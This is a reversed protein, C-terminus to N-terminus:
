SCARPDPVYRPMTLLPSSWGAPTPDVPAATLGGRWPSASCVRLRVLRSTGSPVVVTTRGLRVTARPLAAPEGVRAVLWGAVRGRADWVAIGGRPLLRGDATRGTVLVRLRARPTSWLTATGHRAIPRADALVASSAGTYVLVHGSTLAAGHVRVTGDRAIAAQPDGLLDIDRGGRLRVVRTVHPNWFLTELATGPQADKGVVVMTSPGGAAADVWDARQPLARAFADRALLHSWDVAGGLLAFASAFSLAVVVVPGGRRFRAALAGAFALATGAIAVIGAAGAGSQVDLQLRNFAYFFPAVGRASTEAAGNLPVLAAVAALGAAVATEALARRESRSVRLGFALALLPLLYCLYRGQTRDYHEWLVSELLVAAAVLVTLVSFLFEARFRPRALGLALGVLASPVLAAGAALLVVYVDTGALRVAGGAAAFHGVYRYYGFGRVAAIAIGAVVAAGAVGFFLAQARLATRVRRERAADALLAVAVCIPLAALQMRALPALGCLALLVLQSRRTPRDHMSLAAAAVALALPYAFPESLIMGAFAAPPGAVALGALALALGAPVRLRRAILYAPVAALSMVFANELQVLRYALGVDHVLWVPATLAPELVSLFHAHVGRVQLSGSTAISRALQSYLYEDPFVSPSPLLRGLLTQLLTGALVIGALVLRPALARSSARPLAAPVASM